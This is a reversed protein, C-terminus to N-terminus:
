QEPRQSGIAARGSRHCRAAAAASVAISSTPAEGATVIATIASPRARPGSASRAVSTTTNMSIATTTSNATLWLAPRRPTRRAAATGLSRDDDADRQPREGPDIANPAAHPASNVSYRCTTPRSIVTTSSTNHPTASPTRPAARTRATEPRDPPRDPRNLVDPGGGTVHQVVRGLLARHRREDEEKRRGARRHVDLGQRGDPQDGDRQRGQANEGHRVLM